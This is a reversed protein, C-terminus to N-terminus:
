KHWQRPSQKVRDPNCAICARDGSLTGGIGWQDVHNDNVQNYRSCGTKVTWHRFRALAGSRCNSPNEVLASNCYKIIEIVKNTSGRRSQCGRMEVLKFLQQMMKAQFFGSGFRTRRRWYHGTQTDFKIKDTSESRKASGSLKNCVHNCLRVVVFDYRWDRTPLNTKTDLHTRCLLTKM